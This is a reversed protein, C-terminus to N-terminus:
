GFEAEFLAAEREVRFVLEFSLESFSRFAVPEINATDLWVRLRNMTEAYSAHDPKRVRVTVLSTRAM